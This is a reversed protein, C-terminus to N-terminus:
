KYDNFTEEIDILDKLNINCVKEKIENYNQQPIELIIDERDLM